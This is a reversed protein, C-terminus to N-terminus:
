FRCASCAAFTSLQISREAIRQKVVPSVVALLESEWDYGWDFEASLVCNDLGPHCLIETVGTQPVRDILGVLREPTLRGSVAMGLFHDPRRIGFRDVIRASASTFLALMRCALIRGIPAGSPHRELPLRVAPIGREVAVRCVVRMIGPLAHLHQHSDIHSPHVGAHELRDIQRNLIQQIRSAPYRGAAYAALFERYGAPDGPRGVLAFHVGVDLSPLERSIRVADDFPGADTKPPILSCSTIVGDIHGQKVAQNISAHLGFDDANVILQAPKDM